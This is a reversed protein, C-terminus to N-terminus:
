ESMMIAAAAAAAAAAQQQPQQKQDTDHTWHPKYLPCNESAQGLSQMPNTLETDKNLRSPKSKLPAGQAVHPGGKCRAKSSCPRPNQRGMKELQQSSSALM